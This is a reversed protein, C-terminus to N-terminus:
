ARGRLRIEKTDDLEGWQEVKKPIYFIVDDSHRIYGLDDWTIKRLLETITELDHSHFNVAAGGGFRYERLSVYCYINNDDLLKAFWKAEIDAPFVIAATKNLAAGPTGECSFETKISLRWLEKILDAIGEDIMFTQIIAIEKHERYNM